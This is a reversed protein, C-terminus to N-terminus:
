VFYLSNPTTFTVTASELGEKEVTVFHYKKTLPDKVYEREQRKINPNKDRWVSITVGHTRITIKTVRGTFAAKLKKSYWGVRSGTLPYVVGDIDITKNAVIYM